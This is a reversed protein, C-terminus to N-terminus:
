LHHLQEREKWSNCLETESELIKLMEGGAKRQNKQASLTTNNLIELNM